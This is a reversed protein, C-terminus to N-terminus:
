ILLSLRSLSGLVVGDCAFLSRPGYEGPTKCSAGSISAIVNASCGAEALRRCAAKRLGHASCGKPLGAQDCCERFWNGFGAASFPKGHETVLFTLNDNPTADIIAQLDPDVPIALVVGTKQQRVNLVGNRVHQRGMRVVDSRRQATYLLLALAIRARTGIEHRAEFTAIDDETWTYFGESKASMRKIGTTPDDSRMGEAVAFAMLTKVMRLWHNAGAPTAIKAAFMKVVHDRHLLAIRKDGHEVRFRELIGRYTTQTAPSLGLFGTSGFYAVILAAVTGPRTRKAGIEVRPATDGALAAHYGAMFEDSGPAGKLPVRKRGPLRVYRRVKGHRDRFEHIYELRIKTM